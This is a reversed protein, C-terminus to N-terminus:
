SNWIMVLTTITGDENMLPIPFMATATIEVVSNLVLDNKLEKWYIKRAIGIYIRKYLNEVASM